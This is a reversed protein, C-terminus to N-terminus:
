SLKSDHEAAERLFRPGAVGAILDVAVHWVIVPM